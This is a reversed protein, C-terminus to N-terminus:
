KLAVKLDRRLEKAEDRTLVYHTEGIQVRVLNIALTQHVAGHIETVGDIRWARPWLPPPVLSREGFGDLAYDHRTESM